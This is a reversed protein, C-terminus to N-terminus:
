WNECRYYLYIFKNKKTTKIFIQTKEPSFMSHNVLTAIFCISQREKWTWFFLTPTEFEFDSTIGMQHWFWNWERLVKSTENMKTNYSFNYVIWQDKKSVNFPQLLLYLIATAEPTKSFDLAIRWLFLIRLLRLLIIYSFPHGANQTKIRKFVKFSTPPNTQM